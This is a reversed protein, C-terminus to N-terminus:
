RILNVTLNLSSFGLKSKLNSLNRHGTITNYHKNYTVVLPKLKLVNVVYDLIFYSDKGGSIPVVCNYIDRKSSKYPKVLKLLKKEKM